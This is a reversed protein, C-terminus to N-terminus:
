LTGGKLGKVTGVAAGEAAAKVTEAGGDSKYNRLSGLGLINVYELETSMLIVNVKATTRKTVTKGDAAFEEKTIDVSKCGALLAMTVTITLLTKM